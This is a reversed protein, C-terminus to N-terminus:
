EHSRHDCSRLLKLTLVNKWTTMYMYAGWLIVFLTLLREYINRAQQMCNVLMYYCPAGTLSWQDVFQQIQLFLQGSDLIIQIFDSIQTTDIMADQRFLMFVYPNPVFRPNLPGTYDYLM